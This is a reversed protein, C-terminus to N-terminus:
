VVVRDYAAEAQTLMSWGTTPDITVPEWAHWMQKNFYTRRGGQTVLGNAPNCVYRLAEIPESRLLHMQALDRVHYATDLQCWSIGLSTNPSGHKANNGVILNDLSSEGCMAAIFESVTDKGGLVLGSSVVLRTYWDFRAPNFGDKWLPPLAMEEANPKM